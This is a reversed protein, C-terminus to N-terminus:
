ASLRFNELMKLMALSNNSPLKGTSNKNLMSQQGQPGPGDTEDKDMILRSPVNLLNSDKIGTIPLM